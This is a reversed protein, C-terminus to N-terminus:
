SIFLHSPKTKFTNKVIKIESQNKIISTNKLFGISYQQSKLNFTLYQQTSLLRHYSGAGGVEEGLFYMNGKKEKLPGTDLSVKLNNRATRHESIPAKKVNGPKRSAWICRSARFKAVSFIVCYSFIYAFLYISSLRLDKIDLFLCLLSDTAAQKEYRSCIQWRGSETWSQESQWDTVNKAKYNLTGILPVKREEQLLEVIFTETDLKEEGM